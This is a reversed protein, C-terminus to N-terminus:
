KEKTIRIRMPEQDPLRGLDIWEGCAVSIKTDKLEQVKFFPIRSGDSLKKWESVSRKTASFELDFKSNEKPMCKSVCLQAGLGIEKGEFSIRDEFEKLAQQNGNMQVSVLDATNTSFQFEVLYTEARASFGALLMAAFLVSKM